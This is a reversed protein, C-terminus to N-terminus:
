KDAADAAQPEEKVARGAYLLWIVGALNRHRSAPASVAASRKGAEAAAASVTWATTVTSLPPGASVNAYWQPLIEGFAPIMLLRLIELLLLVIYLSLCNFDKIYHYLLIVVILLLVISACARGSVCHRLGVLAM